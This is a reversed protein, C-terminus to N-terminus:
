LKIFDKLLDNHNTKKYERFVIYVKVCCSISTITSAKISILLIM